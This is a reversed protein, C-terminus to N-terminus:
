AAMENLTDSTANSYTALLWTAYVQLAQPGLPPPPSRPAHEGLFHKYFLVRYTRKGAKQRMFFTDTATVPQKIVYM